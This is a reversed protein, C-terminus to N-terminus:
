QCTSLFDKLCVSCVPQLKSFAEKAILAEEILLCERDSSLEIGLGLSQIYKRDVWYKGSFNLNDGIHIRLLDKKLCKNDNCIAEIISPSTFSAKQGGHKKCLAHALAITL